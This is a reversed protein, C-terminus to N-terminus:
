RCNRWAKRLKRLAHCDDNHHDYKIIDNNESKVNIKEDPGDIPETSKDGLDGRFVHLPFFFPFFRPTSRDGSDREKKENQRTKPTAKRAILLRFKRTDISNADKRKM